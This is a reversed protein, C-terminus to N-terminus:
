DGDPLWRRAGPQPLGQKPRAPRACSQKNNAVPKLKAPRRSSQNSSKLDRGTMSPLPSTERAITYYDHHLRRRTYPTISPASYNRCDKYLTEKSHAAHATCRARM